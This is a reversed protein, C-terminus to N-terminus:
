AAPSPFARLTDNIKDAIEQAAEAPLDDKTAKILVASVLAGLVLLGAVVVLVIKRTRARPGLDELEDIPVM